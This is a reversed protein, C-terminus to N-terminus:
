RGFYEDELEVKKRASEVQNRANAALSALSNRQEAPIGLANLQKELNEMQNEAQRLQREVASKYKM